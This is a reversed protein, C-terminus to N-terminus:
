ARPIFSSPHLGSPHDAPGSEAMKLFLGFDLKYWWGKIILGNEPPVSKCKELELSKLL